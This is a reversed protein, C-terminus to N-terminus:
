LLGFRCWFCACIEHQILVTMVFPIHQFFAVIKKTELVNESAPKVSEKHLDALQQEKRTIWSDIKPGMLLYPVRQEPYQPNETRKTFQSSDFREKGAIELAFVKTHSVGPPVGSKNMRFAIVYLGYVVQVIFHPSFLKSTCNICLIIFVSYQQYMQLNPIGLALNISSAWSCKGLSSLKSKTWSKKNQWAATNKQDNLLKLKWVM